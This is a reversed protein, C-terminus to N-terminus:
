ARELSPSVKAHRTLYSRVRNDYLSDAVLALVIMGALYSIDTLAPGPLNQPSKADTRLHWILLGVPFHLVYLAYSLEGLKRAVYGMSRPVESNAGLLIIAPFLVFVSVADYALNRSFMPMALIGVLVAAALAPGSRYNFIRKSWARFLVMGICYSLAVRCLGQFIQTQAWGLDFTKKSVCACAILVSGAALAVGSLVRSRQRRLFLAHGLNAVIEFFLSWTPLNLPFSPTPAGSGILPLLLGASIGSLTTERNLKYYWIQCWLGFILGLLYLPYLRIIRVKLFSLTPWGRDLKKQYASTLVFGSLMFFFDVALYGHQVNPSPWWYSTHYQVVAIAAVGRLADLTLFRHKTTV